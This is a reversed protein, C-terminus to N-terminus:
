RCAQQDDAQGAALFTIRSSACRATGAAGTAHAATAATRAAATSAAASAATRAARFLREAIIVKYNASALAKHLGLSCAEANDQRM